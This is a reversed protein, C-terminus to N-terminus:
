RRRMRRPRLVVAAIMSIVGLFAAAPEPVPVVDFFTTGIRVEDVQGRWSSGGRMYLNSWAATSTAGAITVGDGADPLEDLSPNLWVTVSGASDDGSFVMQGVVLNDVGHDYYLFDGSRSGGLQARLAGKGSEGSSTFAMMGAGVSYTDNGLVFVRVESGTAATSTNMLMSFWLVDGTDTYGSTDWGRCNAQASGTNDWAANGMAALGPYTLGGDNVLLEDEPTTDPRVGIQWAGAFGAGGNSGALTAGSSYPYGFGEYVLLDARVISGPIALLAVVLLVRALM